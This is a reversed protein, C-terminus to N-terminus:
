RLKEERANKKDSVIGLEPIVIFLSYLFAVLIAIWLLYEIYKKVRKKSFSSKKRKRIRKRLRGSNPSVSYEEASGNNNTDMM